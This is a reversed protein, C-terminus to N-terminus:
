EDDIKSVLKDDSKQRSELGLDQRYWAREHLYYFVMKFFIEVVAVGSAKGVADPDDQFLLFAVVFTTLSAILRWTVTKTFHRVTSRLKVKINYWIREHYYYFIMKLSGEIIAVHTAKKTVDPDDQFFFFTLIFTTSSAIIRWTITKVIHRRRARM